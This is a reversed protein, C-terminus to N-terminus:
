EVKLSAMAYIIGLAIALVVFGYVVLKPGTWGDPPTDHSLTSQPENNLSM